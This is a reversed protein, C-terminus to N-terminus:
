KRNRLSAQFEAFNKYKGEDKAFAYMCLEEFDVKEEISIDHMKKFSDLVEEPITGNRENSLWMKQYHLPHLKDDPKGIYLDFPIKQGNFDCPIKFKKM